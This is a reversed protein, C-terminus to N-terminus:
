RARQRGEPRRRTVRSAWARAWVQCCDSSTRWISIARWFRVTLRVRPLTGMSIQSAWDCPPSPRMRGAGGAARRSRWRERRQERRTLLSGVMLKSPELYSIVGGEAFGDGEHLMVAEAKPDEFERWLVNPGRNEAM